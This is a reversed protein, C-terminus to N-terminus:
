ADQVRRRRVAFFVGVIAFGAAAAIMGWESLTPIPRSALINTIVCSATGEVGSLCEITFGHPIQTIVVGPGAVCEIGGFVYGNQPEETITATSGVPTIGSDGEGDMLSFSFPGNNSDFGLFEFEDSGAGPASLTVQTSCQAPVANAGSVFFCCSVAAALVLIGVIGNLCPRM